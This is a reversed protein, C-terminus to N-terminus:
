SPNSDPIHCGMDRRSEVTLSIRVAYAEDGVAELKTGPYKRAFFDEVLSRLEVASLWRGKDRSDNIHDLIYDSFGVLNVAEQELERQQKQTNQIALEATASRREREDDSLNPDLLSLMLQETTEGLIEELDGISERFVNIREYLRMLIRDEVTNTVALNIISIREAQQGLRDLRGIRQEVRMPNW